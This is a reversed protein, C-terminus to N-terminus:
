CVSVFTISLLDDQTEQGTANRATIADALTLDEMRTLAVAASRRGRLARPVDATVTYSDGGTTDLARGLWGYGKHEEPDTKATHWVAMSEFHSRNPNPYGVGTIAVMQGSKMLKDAARFSPHLGLSDSLKLLDKDALKLRPRLKAYAADKFPVLTNLADNGGDLQVVVLIRADKEPGAARASRAIFAPVTPALAILSSAKLFSRRNFM